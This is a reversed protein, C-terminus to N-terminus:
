KSIEERVCTRFEQLETENFRRGHRDLSRISIGAVRWEWESENGGWNTARCSVPLTKGDPTYVVGSLRGYRDEDENWIIDPVWKAGPPGLPTEGFELTYM